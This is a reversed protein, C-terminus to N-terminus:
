RVDDQPCLQSIEHSSKLVMSIRASLFFKPFRLQQSRFEWAEVVSCRQVHKFLDRRLHPPDQRHDLYRSVPNERVTHPIGLDVFIHLLRSHLALVICIVPVAHEDLQYILVTNLQHSNTTQFLYRPQSTPSYNRKTFEPSPM